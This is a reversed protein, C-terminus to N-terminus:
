KGRLWIGGWSPPGLGAGWTRCAEYREQLLKPYGLGAWLASPNPCAAKEQFSNETAQVWPGEYSSPGPLKALEGSIGRGSDMVPTM